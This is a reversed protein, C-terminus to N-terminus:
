LKFISKINKIKTMEKMLFSLNELFKVRILNCGFSIQSMLNCHMVNEATIKHLHM